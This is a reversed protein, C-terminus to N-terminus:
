RVTGSIDAGREASCAALLIELITHSRTPKILVPVGPYRAQMCDPLTHGSYFVFPIGRSFLIDAVDQTDGTGLRVDLVAASIPESGVCSLASAITGVSIVEAGAERLSDEMNMAIMIEDDAVLIRM